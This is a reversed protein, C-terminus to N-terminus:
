IRTSKKAKKRNEEEQAKAIKENEKSQQTSIEKTIISSQWADILQNSVDFNQKEYM